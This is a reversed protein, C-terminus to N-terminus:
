QNRRWLTKKINTHKASHHVSLCQCTPQLCVAAFVLVCCKLGFSDRWLSWSSCLSLLATPSSESSPTGRDCGSLIFVMTHALHTKNGGDERCTSDGSATSATRPSDAKETVSSFTEMVSIRTWATEPRVRDRCGLGPFLWVMTALAVPRCVSVAGLCTCLFSFFFFTINLSRSHVYSIYITVRNYNTKGTTKGFYSSTLQISVWSHNTSLTM